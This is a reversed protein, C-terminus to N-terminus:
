GCGHVFLTQERAFSIMLLVNGLQLFLFCGISRSRAGSINRSIVAFVFPLIIEGNVSDVSFVNKAVLFTSLDTHTLRLNKINKEAEVLFRGMALRVIIVSKRLRCVVVNGELFAFGKNLCARVTGFRVLCCM